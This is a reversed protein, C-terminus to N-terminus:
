MDIVFIKHEPIKLAPIDHELVLPDMKDIELAAHLPSQLVIDGGHEPLGLGLKRALPLVLQEFVIHIDHLSYEVFLDVAYTEHTLIVAVHKDTKKLHQACIPESAKKLPLRM